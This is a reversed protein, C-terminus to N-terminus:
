AHSNFPPQKKLERVFEKVGVKYSDIERHQWFRGIFRDTAGEDIAMRNAERDTRQCQQLITQILLRDEWTDPHHGIFWLGWTNILNVLSNPIAQQIHCTFKFYHNESLLLHQKDSKVCGRIKYIVSYDRNLFDLCDMDEGGVAEPSANPASYRQWLKGANKSNEWDNLPSLVVFKKQQAEFAQDLLNTYESSILVLPAKVQALLQYLEASSPSPLSEIFEATKQYLHERGKEMEMCECLESLEGKFSDYELTDKLENFLNSSIDDRPVNAGLFIVIRGQQLKDSWDPYNPKSPTQHSQWATILEQDSLKAAFWTDLPDTKESDPNQLGRSELEKLYSAVAKYIPQLEGRQQSLKGRISELWRTLWRNPFVKLNEVVGQDGTSSFQPEAVDPYHNKIFQKVPSEIDRFSWTVPSIKLQPNEGRLTKLLAETFVTVNQQEGNQRVFSPKEPPSSCFLVASKPGMPSKAPLQTIKGSYCADLLFYCRAQPVIKGLGRWLKQMPLDYDNDKAAPIALSLEKDLLTGHGVYYIFVDNTTSKHTELFEDIQTFLSNANEKVDFLNKLHDKPIRLYDLFYSQMGAVSRKFPNNDDPYNHRLTERQQPWASAGLLIVLTKQPDFSTTSM